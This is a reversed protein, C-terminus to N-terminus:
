VRFGLRLLRLIAVDAVLINRTEIVIEIESFSNDVIKLLRWGAHKFEWGKM